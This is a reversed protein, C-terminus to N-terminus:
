EVQTKVNIQFLKSRKKREFALLSLQGHHASLHQKVTSLAKEPTNNHDSLHALFVHSLQEHLNDRLFMGTQDNSLHGKQGRIREKLYAPYPGNNLMVEDYNSELILVHAKKLQATADPSIFGLDTALCLNKDGSSIVFGVPDAADHSVSFPTIAFGGTHFTINPSIERFCSPRTHRTFRNELIANWTQATTFFPINFRHTLDPLGKIHDIHDHTILIAAINKIHKGTEELGRVIKRSGLGADVLVAGHYNGIYYSNGSSGSGFSCIEFDNLHSFLDM